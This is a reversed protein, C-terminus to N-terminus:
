CRLIASSEPLHASRFETNSLSLWSLIVLLSLLSSGLSNLDAQAIVIRVRLAARAAQLATAPGHVVSYPGQAAPFLFITLVCLVALAALESGIRARTMSTGFTM